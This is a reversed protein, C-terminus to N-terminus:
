MLGVVIVYFTKPEGPVTTVLVWFEAERIKNYETPAKPRPIEDLGSKAAILSVIGSIKGVDM